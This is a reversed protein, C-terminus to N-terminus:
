RLLLYAVTGGLGVVALLLAAIIALLCGFANEVAQGIQRGDIM